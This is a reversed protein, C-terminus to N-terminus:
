NAPNITMDGSATPANSKIKRCSVQVREEATEVVKGSKDSVNFRFTLDQKKPEQNPATTFGGMQSWSIKYTANVNRNGAKTYNLDTIASLYHPGVFIAKGTFKERSEVAGHLKLEMPCIFKGVKEVKTPEIRLKARQPDHDLPLCKIVASAMTQYATGYVVSDILLHGRFYYARDMAITGGNFLFDARAAGTAEHLLKNCRRVPALNVSSAGINIDFYQLNIKYRKWEEYLPGEYQVSPGKDGELGEITFTRSNEVRDAPMDGRAWIYFDLSKTLVERYAGDPGGVEIVPVIEEDAKIEIPHVDAMAAASHFAGATMATLLLTKM